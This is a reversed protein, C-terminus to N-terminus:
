SALPAPCAEAIAATLQELTLPKGLVLNVGPTAEGQARLQDAWGTM